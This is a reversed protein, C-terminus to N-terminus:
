LSGEVRPPAHDARVQALEAGTEPSRVTLAPADTADTACRNAVSARDGVSAPGGAADTPCPPIPPKLSASEQVHISAPQMPEVLGSPEYRERPMRNSAARYEVRKIKGDGELKTLAAFVRAKSSKKRLDDGLEPFESLIQWTNSSNSRGTTVTRSQAWAAKLADMVHLDDDATKLAAAAKAGKGDLPWLVGHDLRTLIVPDAKATHTAAGHILTVVEDKLVLALRSRVANHWGTSGSSLVDGDTSPNSLGGKSVHASLVLAADLDEAITKLMQIFARVQRRENENGGFTESASDVVILRGDKVAERLEEMRPTPSLVRTRSVDDMMEIVLETAGRHADLIVLNERVPDEDLEFAEAIWRLRRGIDNARDEASIWVVKSQTVSFPGWCRGAAVCAAIGLLLVSKGVKGHGAVLTVESCPFIPDVVFNPMPWDKHRFGTLDVQVWPAYRSDAPDSHLDRGTVRELRKLDAEREADMRDFDSM